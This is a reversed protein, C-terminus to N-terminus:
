LLVEAVVVAFRGEPALQAVTGLDEVTDVDHLVPLGEVQLGSEVLRQLQRRGTDARSTVVGRILDPHPRRLGLAWWGGDHAPGLVADVGPSLLTGLAQDLLVGTVQPTDMGILLMPIPHEAFADDFANALREDLAGGRQAQVAFDDAPFDGELVLVRVAVQARRVADLTDELAAHAVRAAQEPTLDPTLRTKVLGAVPAKAIVLVQADTM